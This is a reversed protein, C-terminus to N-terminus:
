SRKSKGVNPMPKLLRLSLNSERDDPSNRARYAIRCSDANFYWHGGRISRGFPAALYAYPDATVYAFVNHCWEWVNGSMDYVGWGNPKKQAVPQTQYGSNDNYWGVEDLHNSGAYEFDTEARAAM